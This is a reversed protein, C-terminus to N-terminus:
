DKLCIEARKFSSCTFWRSDQHRHDSMSGHKTNEKSSTTYNM